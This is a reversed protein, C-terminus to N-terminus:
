SHEISYANVSEKTVEIFHELSQYPFEYFLTQYYFCLEAVDSEAITLLDLYHRVREEYSIEDADEDSSDTESEDISFNVVKYGQAQCYALILSEAEEEILEYTSDETQVHLKALVSLKQKIEEITM